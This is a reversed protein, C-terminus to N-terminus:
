KKEPETIDRNDCNSKELNKRAGVDMGPAFNEWDYRRWYSGWDGPTMTESFRPPRAFPPRRFTAATRWPREGWPWDKGDRSTKPPPTGKAPLSGTGSKGKGRAPASAASSVSLGSMAGAAAIEFRPADWRQPRLERTQNGGGGGGSGVFKRKYSFSFSKSFFGIKVRIRVTVEGYLSSAGRENRYSLALMILIGIEIFGFVLVRGCARFYAELVTVARSRRFYIGGMVSLEGQVVALSLSITGGFEFSGEVLSLEPDTSLELAFFGGGAFGSVAVKFTEIRDSLAFRFILPGRGTPLGLAIRFSIGTISVAGFGLAPIAFVLTAFIYDDRIQLQFPSDGSLFSGLTQHIDELFRLAGQFEIVKTVDTLEATGLKPVCQVSGNEVSFSLSRFHILLMDAVTVDFVGLQGRVSYSPPLRDRGPLPLYVVARADIRLHCDEAPEFKVIGIDVKETKKSWTRSREIRDPLENAIAKPLSSPDRVIGLIKDLPLSGLLEPLEPPLLDKVNADFVEHLKDTAGKKLNEVDEAIQQKLGAVWKEAEKAPKKLEEAFRRAEGRAKEFQEKVTEAVGGFERSLEKIREKAEVVGASQALTSAATSLEGFVAGKAQDFDRLGKEVYDKTFNVIQKEDIGPVKVHFEALKPFALQKALGAGLNEVSFVLQSAQFIAKRTQDQFDRLMAPAPLSVLARKALNFAKGEVLDVSQRLDSMMGDAFEEAHGTIKEWYETAEKQKEGALKQIADDINEVEGVLRRLEGVAQTVEPFRSKLAELLQSKALSGLLNEIFGDLAEEANRRVALLAAIVYGTLDPIRESLKAADVWRQLAEAREEFVKGVSAAVRALEATSRKYLADSIAHKKALEDLLDRRLKAIEGTKESRVKEMGRLLDEALGVAAQGLRWSHWERRAIRLAAEVWPAAAVAAPNELMKGLAKEVTSKEKEFLTELTERFEGAVEEALRFLQELNEVAEEGAQAADRAPEALTALRQFFAEGAQQFHDLEARLAARVRRGTLDVVDELKQRLREPNASVLLKQITDQAHKAEQLVPLKKLDGRVKNQIARYKGLVEERWHAVMEPTAEVRRVFREFRERGDRAHALTATIHSQVDRFLTDLEGKVAEHGRAAVDEVARHLRQRLGREDELAEEVGRLVRGVAASDREVSARVGDLWEKVTTRLEKVETPLSPVLGELDFRLVGDSLTLEVMEQNLLRLQLRKKFAATLIRKEIDADLGRAIFHFVADWVHRLWVGNLQAAWQVLLERLAANYTQQTTTLVDAAGAAAEALKTLQVAIKAAFDKAAKIEDASGEGALKGVAAISKTAKAINKQWSSDPIAEPFRLLHELREAAFIHDIETIEEVGWAICRRASNAIEEAEAKASDYSGMTEAIKETFTGRWQAAFTEVSNAADEVEEAILKAVATGLRPVQREVEVGAEATSSLLQGIAAKPGDIFTNLGDSVVALSGSRALAEGTALKGIAEPLVAALHASAKQLDAAPGIDLANVAGPAPLEVFAIKSKVSASRLDIPLHQYLQEGLSITPVFLMPMEVVETRGDRYTFRMPFRYPVLRSRLKGEADRGFDRVRPLFIERGADRGSGGAVRLDLGNKITEIFKGEEVSCYQNALVPTREVLLEVKRLGAARAGIASEVLFDETEGPGFERVLGAKPFRPKVRAFKRAVLFALLHSEHGELDIFESEPLDLGAALLLDRPRLRAGGHTFELWPDICPLRETITVSEAKFGWPMWWGAFAEKSYYDRGLETKQIWETLFGEDKPDTRTIRPPPLEPPEKEWAELKKPPPGQVEKIPTDGQPELLPRYRLHASAGLATLSLHEATIDGNDERLQLVLLRRTADYLTTKPSEYSTYKPDERANTDTPDIKKPPPAGEIDQPWRAEELARRAFAFLHGAERRERPTGPAPAGDQPRQLELAWLEAPAGAVTPRLRWRANQYPSLYLLTPFEIATVPPPAGPHHGAHVEPLPPEVPKAAGDKPPRDFASDLQPAVMLDLQTCLRLIAEATCPFPARWQPVHFVLQSPGAVWLGAAGRNWAPHNWEGELAGNWGTDIDDWKWPEPNGDDMMEAWRPFRWRARHERDLEQARRTPVDFKETPEPVRWPGFRLFALDDKHPSPSQLWAIRDDWDAKSRWLPYTVPAPPDGKGDDKSINAPIQPGRDWIAQEAFHQGPFRLVIYGSEGHSAIHVRRPAAREGSEDVVRLNVLEVDLCLHDEPRAIRFVPWPSVRAQPLSESISQARAEVRLGAAVGSLGMLEIFRRRSLRTMRAFDDHNM